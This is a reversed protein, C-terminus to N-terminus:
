LIRRIRRSPCRQNGAATPQEAPMHEFLKARRAPLRVGERVSFEVDRVGVRHAAGSLTHLGIQNEVAGRSGINVTAFAFGFPRIRDVLVARSVQGFRRAVRSGLDNVDAGIVHEVARLRAEVRLRVLRARQADVTLRLKGAFAGRAAHTLM